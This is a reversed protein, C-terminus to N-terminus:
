KKNLIITATAYKKCHAVSINFVYNERETLMKARGTTIIFPTDLRDRLVTVDRPQVVRTGTGIAKAFAVKACYNEAILGTSLSRSVLYRLEDASFFKSLFKPNRAIRRIRDIEVIATGTRIFINNSPM